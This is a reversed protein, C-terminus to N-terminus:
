RVRLRALPDGTRAHRPVSSRSLSLPLSLYLQDTRPPLPPHEIQTRMAPVHGVNRQQAGDVLGPLGRLQLGLHHVRGQGQLSNRCAMQGITVATTTEALPEGVLVLLPLSPILLPPQLTGKETVGAEKQLCYRSLFDGTLTEGFGALITPLVAQVSDFLLNVLVCRVLSLSLRLHSTHTHTHRSKGRAARQLRYHVAKDDDRLNDTTAAQADAIGTRADCWPSLSLSLANV